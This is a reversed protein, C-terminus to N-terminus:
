GKGSPLHHPVTGPELEERLADIEARLAEYEALKRHLFARTLLAKATMGKPTLVYAYRLRNQATRFNEAKVLGKEVLARLLYNISGLAVGLERAIERQTMDPNDALLRLVRYRALDRTETAM